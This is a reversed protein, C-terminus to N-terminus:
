YKGPFDLREVNKIIKKAKQYYRKCERQIHLDDSGKKESATGINEIIKRISKGERKLDYVKLCKELASIKLGQPDDYLSLIRIHEKISPTQKKKRIAERIQAFIEADNVGLVNVRLYLWRVYKLHDSFSRIFEDLSPPTKFRKSFSNMDTAILSAYDVVDKGDKRLHSLYEDKVSYRRNSKWWNEFSEENPNGFIQYNARLLSWLCDDEPIFDSNNVVECYQSYNDSRKLYEWRLRWLEKVEKKM